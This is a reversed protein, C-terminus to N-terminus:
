LRWFLNIWDAGHHRMLIKWVCASQGFKAKRLRTQLRRNEKDTGERDIMLGVREEFSLEGIDPMQLQEEFAKAMGHLKLSKMKELTPHTLM